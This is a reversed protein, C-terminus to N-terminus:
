LTELDGCEVLRRATRLLVDTDNFRGARVWARYAIWRDHVPEQEVPRPPAVREPVAAPIEPEHEDAMLGENERGRLTDAPVSTVKFRM